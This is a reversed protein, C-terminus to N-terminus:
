GGYGQPNKSQWHWHDICMKALDYEAQWGLVAKARSSDAYYIPADGARRKTIEYPIDFGCAAAWAAVVELVSSGQDTGLNITEAANDKARDSLLYDVAKVHGRALDVVHIYDRICTGDPTDYDNGFVMLKDRKETAVQAIYPFLNDPIGNPDEGIEGSHHAGVPNFYRLLLARWGPNIATMDTLIQEAMLKTHGYPSLPSTPATERMPLTKPIGYVTASSSFVANLVGHRQMAGFLNVSGSVNIDYYKQPNSVSEGVAKAGAMHIVADIKHAEFLQDLASADRVDGEILIPAGNTLRSVRRISEPSSNSFNDFIVVQYGSTLLEYCIHSGIYGAGGTTLITKTM